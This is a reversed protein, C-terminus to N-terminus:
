ITCRSSPASSTPIFRRVAAVIDLAATSCRTCLPLPRMTLMAAAAAVLAARPIPSNSKGHPWPCKHFDPERFRRHCSRRWPPRVYGDRHRNRTATTLREFDHLATPEWPCSRGCITQPRDGTRPEGSRVFSRLIRHSSGLVRRLEGRPVVGRPPHAETVSRSLGRKRRRWPQM